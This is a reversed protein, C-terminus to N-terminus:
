IFLEDWLIGDFNSIGLDDGECSVDIEFESKLTRNELNQNILSSTAMFEATTEFDIQPMDTPSYEFGDVISGNRKLGTDEFQDAVPANTSPVLGDAISTNTSLGDLELKPRNEKHEAYPLRKRKNGDGLSPRSRLRQTILSPNKVVAALFSLIQQPRRETLDLRRKLDRMERDISEQEEKLQVVELAIANEDKQLRQFEEELDYQAGLQSGLGQSHHHSSRRRRICHLLQKQGRLFFEHAFEWRDADVKRFGYTNLQRVFSSFNCHKFYRPLLHLSFDHPDKVLFSNNGASWSVVNDTSSDDVIAYIKTLFPTARNAEMM